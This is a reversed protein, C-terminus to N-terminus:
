KAAGKKVAGLQKTSSIVYKNFFSNHNDCPDCDCDGGCLPSIVSHISDDTYIGPCKNGIFSKQGPM